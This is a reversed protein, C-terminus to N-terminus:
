TQRRRPFCDCMRNDSKRFGTDECLECRFRPQLDEKTFGLQAMREAREKCVRELEDRIAQAKEPFFVEAKAKEIELRRRRNDLEFYHSDSNLQAEFREIRQKETWQLGSYYREREAQWEQSTEARSRDARAGQRFTATKKFGREAKRLLKYNVKYESRKWGNVGRCGKPCFILDMSMLLKVAKRATEECIPLAKAIGRYSAVFRGEDCHTKIHAFVLAASHTLYAFTGDKKKFQTHLMYLELKFSRLQKESLDKYSTRLRNSKDQQVKATACASRIAANVTSRAYNLKQQFRTFSAVCRADPRGEVCSFSYIMARVFLDSIRQTGRSYEYPIRIYGEEESFPTEGNPLDIQQAKQLAM